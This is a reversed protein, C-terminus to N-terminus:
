ESCDLNEVLRKEHDSGLLEHALKSLDTSMRSWETVCFTGGAWGRFEDARGRSAAGARPATRGGSTDTM